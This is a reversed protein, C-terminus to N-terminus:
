DGQMRHEICNSWHMDVFWKYAEKNTRLIKSRAKVTGSHNMVSYPLFEDKPKIVLSKKCALCTVTNGGVTKLDLSIFQNLLKEKAQAYERSLIRDKLAM